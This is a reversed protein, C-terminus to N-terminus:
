NRHLTVKYSIGCITMEGPISMKTTELKPSNCTLSSRVDCFVGKLTYTCVQLNMYVRSDSKQIVIPM